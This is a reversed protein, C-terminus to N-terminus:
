QFTVVSVYPDLGAGLAPQRCSDHYKGSCYSCSIIPNYKVNNSKGCARCFPKSPPTRVDGSRVDNSGVQGLKVWNTSLPSESNRLKPSDTFSRSDRSGIRRRKLPPPSINPQRSCRETNLGTTGYIRERCPDIAPKEAGYDHNRNNNTSERSDYSMDSVLKKSLPLARGTSKPSGHVGISHVLALHPHLRESRKLKLLLLMDCTPPQRKGAAQAQLVVM